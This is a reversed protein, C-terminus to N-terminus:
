QRRLRGAALITKLTFHTGWRAASIGTLSSSGEDWVMAGVIFTSPDIRLTDNALSYVGSYTQTIGSGMVTSVSQPIIVTASFSNDMRLTMQISGGAAQVDVPADNPGPVDFATSVYDGKLRNAPESVHETLCGPLVVVSVLLLRHIATM